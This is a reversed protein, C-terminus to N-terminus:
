GKRIRNMVRECIRCIPPMREGPESEDKWFVDDGADRGCLTLGEGQEGRFAHLKTPVREAEYSNYFEGEYFEKPTWWWGLRVTIVKM